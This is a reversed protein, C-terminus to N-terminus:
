AGLFSNIGPFSWYDTTPSYQLCRLLMGCSRFFPAYPLQSAAPLRRGRNTSLIEYVCDPSRHWCFWIAVFPLCNWQFVRSIFISFSLSFPRPLIQLEMALLFGKSSSNENKKRSSISKKYPNVINGFTLSPSLDRKTRDGKFVGPRPPQSVLQFIILSCREM